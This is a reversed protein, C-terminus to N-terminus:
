QNSFLRISKQRYLDYGTEKENNYLEKVKQLVLSAAPPIKRTVIRDFLVLNMVVTRQNLQFYKYYDGIKYNKDIEKRDAAWIGSIVIFDRRGPIRNERNKDEQSGSVKLKFGTHFYMFDSLLSDAFINVKPPIMGHDRLGIIRNKQEVLDALVNERKGLDHYIMLSSIVLIVGTSIASNLEKEKSVLFSVIFILGALPILYRLLEFWNFLLYMLSSQNFFGRFSILAIAFLFVAFYVLLAILAFNKKKYFVTTKMRMEHSKKLSFFTIFISTFLIASVLDAIFAAWLYGLFLVINRLSIEKVFVMLLLFLNFVFLENFFKLPTEFMYPVLAIMYLSLLQNMKLKNKKSLFFVLHLSLSFMFAIMSYYAPVYNLGSLHQWHYLLVLPIPDTLSYFSGSETLSKLNALISISKTYSPEGSFFYILWLFATLFFLSVYLPFYNEVQETDKYRM